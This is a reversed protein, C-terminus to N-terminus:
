GPHLLDFLTNTCTSRKRVRGRCSCGPPRRRYRDVLQYIPQTDCGGQRGTAVPFLRLSSFSRPRAPSAQRRRGGNRVAGSLGDALSFDVKSLAEQRRQPRRRPSGPNCTVVANTVVTLCWAQETQQEHHRRRMKGETGFHIIRRLAHLSEGKNLQRAIKRRYTEDSLYRAAYITRRVAGWEKLGAALANQRSSASLKGVLLSATAHGYKLSASLRLMDDWQAAILEQDVTGTLLPGATPYKATYDRRRGMRHLTIGGLDRIRPSLLLGVLDFLAFNVLTVGHTDVAHETIPLDTANGLIEDLAYHAERDTAVIVKTGYTSHQDSVHTYQSLGENVFYRSLHRATISKGRM